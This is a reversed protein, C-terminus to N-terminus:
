EKALKVFTGLSLDWGMASDLNGRVAGAADGYRELNRHELRVLTKKAGQSIFEVEVETEFNPDFKWEATIQWSLLLRKPPDIALVKGWNCESGDAGKEYWRGNVKPEILATFTPDTGIHHERPWWANINETFFRFAREQPAEVVLEKKVPPVVNVKAAASM